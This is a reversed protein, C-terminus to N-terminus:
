DSAHRIARTKARRASCDCRSSQSLVVDDAFVRIQTKGYKTSYLAHFGSGILFHFGIIQLMGGGKVLCM